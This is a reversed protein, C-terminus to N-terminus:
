LRGLIKRITQMQLYLHLESDALAQFGYRAYFLRAQEGKAVVEMAYIGLVDATEASRRFASHLLLEGLGQGRASLDVALRALHAAPIPYRPLRRREPEPLQEPSISGATLTYFGLVRTEGRLVAVHTRSIDRSQNQRAHQRLFENLAPEGCDFTHRDHAGSLPQIAFSM